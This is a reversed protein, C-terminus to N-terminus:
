WALGTLANSVRGGKRKPQMWWRWQIGYEMRRETNEFTCGFSGDPGRTLLQKPPSIETM